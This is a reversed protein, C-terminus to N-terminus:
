HSLGIIKLIMVNAQTDFINLSSTVRFNYKRLDCEILALFFAEKISM